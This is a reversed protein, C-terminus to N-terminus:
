TLIIMWYQKKEKFQTEDVLVKRVETEVVMHNTSLIVKTIDFVTQNLAVLLGLLLMFMKKWTQNKTTPVRSSSLLHSYM